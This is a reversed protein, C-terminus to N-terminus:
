FFDPWLDDMSKYKGALIGELLAREQFFPAIGKVFTLYDIPYQIEGEAVSTMWATVARSLAVETLLRAVPDPISEIFSKSADRGTFVQPVIRGVAVVHDGELLEIREGVGLWEKPPESVLSFVGSGTRTVEDFTLGICEVGRALQLSEAVHAQWRIQAQWGVWPLGARGGVQPPVWLFELAVEAM